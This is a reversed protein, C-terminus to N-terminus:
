FRGLSDPGLEGSWFLEDLHKMNEFFCGATWIAAVSPWDFCGDPFHPKNISNPLLCSFLVYVEHKLPFGVIAVCGPVLIPCSSHQPVSPHHIPLPPSHMRTCQARSSDRTLNITQTSLAASASVDSHLPVVFFLAKQWGLPEAPFTLAEPLQKGM